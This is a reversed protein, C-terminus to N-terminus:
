YQCYFFCLFYMKEFLNKSLSFPSFFISMLLHFSFFEKAYCCFAILIFFQKSVYSFLSFVFRCYTMTSIKKAELWLRHGYISLLLTFNVHLAIFIIWFLYYNAKVRSFSVVTLVSCKMTINCSYKWDVLTIRDACNWLPEYLIVICDLSCISYSTFSIVKYDVIM